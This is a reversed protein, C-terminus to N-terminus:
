HRLAVIAVVVAALAVLVSVGQIILGLSSRTGTRTDHLQRQLEDRHWQEHLGLQRSVTTLQTSLNQVQAGVYRIMADFSVGRGDPEVM